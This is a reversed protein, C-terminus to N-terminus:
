HASPRSSNNTNVFTIVEDTKIMIKDPNCGASGGTISVTNEGAVLDITFEVETFHSYAVGNKTDDPALGTLGELKKGAVDLPAGNFKMAPATEGDLPVEPISTAGWPASSSSMRIYLTVTCAKEAKFKWTITQKGATEASGGFYGINTVLPGSTYDGSAVWERRNYEVTMTKNSAVDGDDLEAFEAEFHYVGDIPKVPAADFRKCIKCIGNEFEHAAKDGKEDSHACTAAHWHENEDSEWKINYIHTHGTMDTECVDCIGDANLDYHKTHPAEGQACATFLAGVALTLASAAAIAISKRKM